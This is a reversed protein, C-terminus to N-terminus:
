YHTVIPILQTMTQTHHSHIVFYLHRDWHYDTILVTITLFRLVLAPLVDEETGMKRTINEHAPLPYKEVWLRCVYLTQVTTFPHLLQVWENRGIDPDRRYYGISLHRMDCLKTSFRDFLQVVHSLGWQAGCLIIHITHSVQLCIDNNRDTSRLTWRPRKLPKDQIDIASSHLLQVIDSDTYRLSPYIDCVRLKIRNESNSDKDNSIILHHTVHHWMHM